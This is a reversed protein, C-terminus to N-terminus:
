VYVEDVEYLEHVEDVGYVNDVEIFSLYDVRAYEGGDATGKVTIVDGYNLELDVGLSVNRRTAETAFDGDLDEDLKISEGVRDDNVYVDIYGQGDNEDFVSLTLDYTGAETGFEGVILKATGTGDSGYNYDSAYNYDSPRKLSILEGESAIANPEVFYNYLKLDEAEVLIREHGHSVDEGPITNQFRIIQENSVIEFEPYPDYHSNDYPDSEYHSNDSSHKRGEDDTLRSVRLRDLVGDFEENSESFGLLNEEIIFSINNLALPNDGTVDTELLFTEGEENQFGPETSRDEIILTLELIDSPLTSLGEGNITYELRRSVNEDIPDGGKLNALPEDEVEFPLIERALTFGNAPDDVLRTTLDFTLPLPSTISEGREAFINTINVTSDLELAGDIDFFRAQFNEVAGGFTRDERKRLKLDDDREFTEFNYRTEFRNSFGSAGSGPGYGM